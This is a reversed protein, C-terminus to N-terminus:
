AGLAEGTYTHVVNTFEVTKGRTAFMGIYFYHQDISVFNFDTYTQDKYTISTTVVQGLRTISLIATDKTKYLGTVKNSIKNLIKSERSFLANMDSSNCLLGAVVYNSIISSDKVSLYCDDRLM